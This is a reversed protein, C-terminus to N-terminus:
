EEMEDFTDEFQRGPRVLGVERELSALGRVYVERAVDSPSRFHRGRTPDTRLVELIADTRDLDSQPQAFPRRVMQETSESAM